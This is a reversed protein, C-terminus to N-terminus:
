RVRLLTDITSPLETNEQGDVAMAMPLLVRMAEQLKQEAMKESKQIAAALKSALWATGAQYFLPDWLDPNTVDQLYVIRVEADNTLLKRGEIKYESMLPFLQLVDPNYTTLNGNFEIIKILEAPLPYSYTYGFAPPFPEYALVKRAMAFNWHHSRIMARRLDPWFTKCYNANLSQDDIATVKQAGIQGLADNLFDTENAM